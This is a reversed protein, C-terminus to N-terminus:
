DRKAVAKDDLGTFEVRIDQEEGAYDLSLETKITDLHSEPLEEEAANQYSNSCGNFLRATEEVAVKVTVSNTRHVSWVTRRTHPAVDDPDDHVTETIWVTPNGDRDMVKHAHVYM